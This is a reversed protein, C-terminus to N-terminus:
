YLDYERVIEENNRKINEIVTEKHLAANRKMSSIHPVLSLFTLSFVVILVISLLVANGKDKGHFLTKM